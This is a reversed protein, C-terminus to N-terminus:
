LSWIGPWLKHLLPPLWAASSLVALMAAAIAVNSAREALKARYAIKYRAAAVEAALKNLEDLEKRQDADLQLMRYNAASNAAPFLEAQLATMEKYDEPSFQGTCEANQWLREYRELKGEIAAEDNVRPHIKM